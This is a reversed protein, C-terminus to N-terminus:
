ILKLTSMGGDVHLIQGTIWSAQESLLFRATQALEHASGIKQLPHRNAGVKRKEDSALLREALPTDTLSPAIANVRIVPAWEAALAKTLGEIAGKAAAISAHFPMGTQVAVTSFLVVSADSSKKLVPLATQLLRVAGLLNVQLDNMWEETTFRHFPKLQITGPCYVVGKLTEPLFDAPVTDVALDISRHNVAELPHKERRSLSWVHQQENHLLQSLELGIGSTAGAILYNDPM